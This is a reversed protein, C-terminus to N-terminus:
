HSQFTRVMFKATRDYSYNKTKNAAFGGAAPTIGDPEDDRRAPNISQQNFTRSIELNHTLSNFVSAIPRRRDPKCRCGGPTHTLKHDQRERMTSSSISEAGIEPPRHAWSAPTSGAILLGLANPLKSRKTYRPRKVAIRM